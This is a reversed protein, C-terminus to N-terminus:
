SAYINRLLCTLHDSIGMVKLTKWLKNHHVSDFAKAYDIFCLYINEPFERAKDIIWHISAIQDRTEEARELDLKYMQFNENWASSFSLKFSKSCSRALMPFSCLQVTSQVNKPMARRQAQLSFQGNGTMHGSSLKGFKSVYQSYPSPYYNSKHHDNELTYM